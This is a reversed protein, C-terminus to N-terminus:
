RACEVGRSEEDDPMSLLQLEGARFHDSTLGVSIETGQSRWSKRDRAHGVM